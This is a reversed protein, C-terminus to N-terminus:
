EKGSIANKIESLRVVKMIGQSGADQNIREVTEQAPIGISNSIVIGGDLNAYSIAKEANFIEKISLPRKLDHYFVGVSAGNDYELLMHVYTAPSSKEKIKLGHSPNVMLKERLFRIVTKFNNPDKVIHSNRDKFTDIRTANNYDPVKHGIQTSRELNDKILDMYGLSPSEKVSQYKKNLIDFIEKDSTEDIVEYSKSDRNNM